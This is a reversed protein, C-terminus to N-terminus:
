RENRKQAETWNFEARLSVMVRVRGIVFNAVISVLRPV